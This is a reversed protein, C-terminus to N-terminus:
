WHKRGARCRSFEDLASLAADAKEAPVFIHDHFYAAMVNAGIGREALKGSVAATLGVADLSSHAGLTICKYISEYRLGAKDANERTLVLTLGEDESLSALPFCEAFDGYGAGAITCFVFDGERLRLSLSAMLKGLDKEGAM